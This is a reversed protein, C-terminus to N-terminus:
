TTVGDLYSPWTTGCGREETETLLRVRREEVWEVGEGILPTVLLRVGGYAVKADRVTM